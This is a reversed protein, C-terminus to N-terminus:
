LHELADEDEWFRSAQLDFMTRYRGSAAILEDHSGEEVIRGHELVCVRDVHRVTSFRHSILITTLGRTAELIRDFIEAEGRVDLQATPEDLIVVGAGLKVACLARALAIRQWQGGSVETGGGYARNLITDLEALDGAGARELSALVAEDEAGAIAVNERLSLEYRIFDQFVAAVRRRWADLDLDRLDIGDVTISGHQPDYLRCVLKAITTKGAGNPGVIALSRGAPIALDFGDLVEVGTTPYAFRVGEFRIETRPRGEAERSGPSLAGPRMKGALDLVWPIPQASGRFWWDFDGFALAATGIAAQAYVVLRDLEITGATADRALSWFVLANAGVVLILSWRMPRVRLRREDYLLEAVKTRVAIVRQVAWDALGFLRIEKAAPADVALRYAYDVHRMQTSVGDASFIKWVASRHLLVHTSAWAGAVALAAWWRYTMLLAAQALGGAIQTFGNAVEGLAAQLPPATLGTDFDRAKALDDAVAPDELHAVGAPETCAAMVRDKLWAGVRAGLVSGVAIQLPAISSMTVFVIGAAALPPGLGDGRQVAGVLAGMSIAFLAPLSGGFAILTWWVVALKREARMFTGLFRWEASDRLREIM